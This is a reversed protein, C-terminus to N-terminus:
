TALAGVFWLAAALAAAVAEILVSLGVARLALRTAPGAAERGLRQVESLYVGLVFGLFLGVVPIAFFGVVGAAAGIVVTRRPIGSARLSRGPLAYKVVTGVVLVAVAAGTYLWATSGGVVAAWILLAAGILLTGPLLPVVIGVLGVVIALGALVDEIEM